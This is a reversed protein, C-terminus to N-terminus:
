ERSKIEATVVQVVVLHRALEREALPGSAIMLERILEQYDECTAIKPSKHPNDMISVKRATLGGRM